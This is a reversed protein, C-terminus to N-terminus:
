FVFITHVMPGAERDFSTRLRRMAEPMLTALSLKLWAPRSAWLFLMRVILSAEESVPLFMAMSASRGPGLIRIPEMLPPEQMRLCPSSTTSVVRLTV